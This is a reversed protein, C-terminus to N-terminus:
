KVLYSGKGPARNRGDYNIVVGEGSTHLIVSNAILQNGVAYGDGGIEIENFPFYLTGVFLMDSTGIIRAPTCNDPDQYFLMGEYPMAINDDVWPELEDMTLIPNGGIDVSGGLIYFMVGDNADIIGGNIKLGGKANINSCIEGDLIYIGPQFIVPYPATTINIGGSYYGPSLTFNPDTANTDITCPDPTWPACNNPDPSLDNDPDASLRPMICEYDPYCGLPDPMYNCPDNDSIPYDTEPGDYCGVINMQAANEITACGGLSVAPKPHDCSSCNVVVEGLVPGGGVDLISCGVSQLGPDGEKSPGSCNVDGCPGPRTDECSSGCDLAILGAGTGGDSMAIAYRTVDVTDVNAIHGFILSVPPNAQGDICRPVVKVANAFEGADSPVFLDYQPFYLGIVIDGDEANSSNLGLKVSNGDAYYNAQGLIQAQIRAQTQDTKVLQAGALAAADAVNQLQHAVLAVKATDITLGVFLILVLIVIATWILAVGRYRHHRRRLLGSNQPGACDRMPSLDQSIGVDCDQKTSGSIIKHLEAM